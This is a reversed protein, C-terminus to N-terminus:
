TRGDQGGTGDQAASRRAKTIQLEVTTYGTGRLTRKLLKALGSLPKDLMFRVRKRDGAPAAQVTGFRPSRLAPFADWLDQLVAKPAQIKDLLLLARTDDPGEAVACALPGSRSLALLKKTTMMDMGTGAPPEAM